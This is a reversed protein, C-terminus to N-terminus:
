RQEIILSPLTIDPPAWYWYEWIIRTTSINQYEWIGKSLLNQPCRQVCRACLLTQIGLRIPLVSVRENVSRPAIMWGIRTARIVKASRASSCARSLEPLRCHPVTAVTRKWIEKWVDLIPNQDDLLEVQYEPIGLISGPIWPITQPSAVWFILFSLFHISHPGTLAFFNKQVAATAPM